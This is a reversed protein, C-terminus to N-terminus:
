KGWNERLPMEDGNQDLVLGDVILTPVHDFPNSPDPSEKIIWVKEGAERCTLYNELDVIPLQFGDYRWVVSPFMYRMIYSEEAPSIFELPFLAVEVKDKNSIVKEKDIQITLTKGPELQSIMSILGKIFARESIKEVPPPPPPPPPPVEKKKCGAGLALVFIVLLFLFKKM